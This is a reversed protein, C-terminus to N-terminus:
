TFFLKNDIPICDNNVILELEYLVLCLPLNLWLYTRVVMFDVTLTALTLSHFERLVLIVVMLFIQTNLFIHLYIFLVQNLWM